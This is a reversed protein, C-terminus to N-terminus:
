GFLVQHTPSINCGKAVFGSLEEPLQQFVKQAQQETAFEAFVCAGTGTMRSPAYELLWQLAKAIIPYKKVVLSQFDNKLDTTIGSYNLTNNDLKPTNRPLEPHSFLEKTNVHANPTLVLYWANHVNYTCMKDGTGEAISSKGRIFIPVDAGLTNGLAELDATSHGLDWLSNLALMTTAANSSGGGVGGGMPLRKNLTIHVGKEVKNLTLNVLLNAAKLVLNDDTELAKINCTLTIKGSANTEFTMTDGYDIFHFLSQLEHYGNELRGNIHLFLNLKAPSPLTLKQHTM